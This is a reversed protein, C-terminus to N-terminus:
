PKIAIRGFREVRQLLPSADPYTGFYEDVAKKSGKWYGYDDIILVGGSVLRPYLHTMEHKTSDYWDTDLRLIAIRDPSQAPITNEVHGEIIYVKEPPYATSALNSAVEDKTALCWAGKVGEINKVEDTSLGDFRVDDESAPPMGSFADYLFLERDAANSRLLVEAALMMSGGRWVGCEVIAGPIDNKLVYDVADVLALMQEVSTMTFPRVRDLLDREEDTLGRYHDIENAVLRYGIPRLLRNAIRGLM